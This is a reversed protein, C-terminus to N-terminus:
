RGRGLFPLGRPELQLPLTFLAHRHIGRNQSVPICPIVTAMNSVFSYFIYINVLYDVDGYAHTRVGEM